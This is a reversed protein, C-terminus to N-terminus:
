ILDCVRSRRAEKEVKRPRKKKRACTPQQGARRWIELDQRGGTSFPFFSLTKTPSRESVSPCASVRACPCLVACSPIRSWCLSGAGPGFRKKEVCAAARKKHLAASVRLLRENAASSLQQRISATCSLSGFAVKRGGSHCDASHRRLGLHLQLDLPLSRPFRRPSTCPPLRM